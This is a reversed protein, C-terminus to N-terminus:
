LSNATAPPSHPRAEQGPSSQKCIAVGSCSLPISRHLTSQWLIIIYLTTAMSVLPMGTNDTWTLEFSLITLVLQQDTRQLNGVGQVKNGNHTNSIHMCSVNSTCLTLRNRQNCVSVTDVKICSWIYFAFNNNSCQWPIYINRKCDFSEIINLPAESTSRTSIRKRNIVAFRPQSDNDVVQTHQKGRVLLAMSVQWSTNKGQQRCVNVIKYDWNRIWQWCYVYNILTPKNCTFEHM